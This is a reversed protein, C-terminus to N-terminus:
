HGHDEGRAFLYALGAAVGMAGFLLTLFLGFSM